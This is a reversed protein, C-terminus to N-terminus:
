AAEKDQTVALEPALPQAASFAGGRSPFPLPEKDREVVFAPAAVERTLSLLRARRAAQCNLYYLTAAICKGSCAMKGVIM